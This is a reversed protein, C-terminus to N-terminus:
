RLDGSVLNNDEVLCADLLLTSGCGSDDYGFDVTGGKIVSFLYM